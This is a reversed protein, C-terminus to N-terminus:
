PPIHNLYYIHITTKVIIKSIKSSNVIYLEHLKIQEINTKRKSITEYIGFDDDIRCKIYEIKPSLIMDNTNMTQM